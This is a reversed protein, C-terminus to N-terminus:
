YHIRQQEEWLVVRIKLVIRISLAVLMGIVIVVLAYLVDSILDPKRIMGIQEVPATQVVEPISSSTPASTSNPVSVAATSATDSSSDSPHPVAEAPSQIPSAEKCECCSKNSHVNDVKESPSSSTDSSKQTM